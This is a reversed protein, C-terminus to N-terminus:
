KQCNIKESSLINYWSDKWGESHSSKHYIKQKVCNSSAADVFKAAISPPVIKDKGGSLHLQPIHKVKDVYEIPNLSENMPSVNHFLNFARHDLNGSVTLIDKVQQNRAAILVAMSGGGSFGILSFKQKNNIKNIAENLSYVSDESMRKSTWYANNCSPNLEMPTYQCPRAVYVINPREDQVVLRLLMQHKPTTNPSIRYKNIYALGDGEIYFVYTKNPNTIKQYTTIWFDGGKVLVKSFGYEDISETPMRATKCSSLVCAAFFLCIIKSLSKTM